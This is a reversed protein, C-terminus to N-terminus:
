FSQTSRFQEILLPNVIEPKELHAFHGAGAIREVRVGKPFDTDRFAIDFIRTDVCGDEAGTIALTRVPIERAQSGRTKRLGILVAPSLNQRYYSLMASKVGPAAFM